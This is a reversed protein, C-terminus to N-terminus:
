DESYGKTFMCREFFFSEGDVAKQDRECQEMDRQTEEASTNPRTWTHASCGVLLVSGLALAITGKTIIKGAAAPVFRLLTM